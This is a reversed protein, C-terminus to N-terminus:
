ADELETDQIPRNPRHYLMFQIHALEQEDRETAEDANIKDILASERSELEYQVDPTM